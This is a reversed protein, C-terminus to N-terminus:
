SLQEQAKITWAGACKNHKSQAERYATLVFSHSSSDSAHISLIGSLGDESTNTFSIGLKDALPENLLLLKATKGTLRPVISVAGGRADRTIILIHDTNVGTRRHAESAQVLCKDGLLVGLKKVLDSLLIEQSM